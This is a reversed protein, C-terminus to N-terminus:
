SLFQFVLSFTPFETLYKYKIAPRAMSATVVQYLRVVSKNLVSRAHFLRLTTKYLTTHKGQRPLFTFRDHQNGHKWSEEANTSRGQESVDESRTKQVHEFNAWTLSSWLSRM